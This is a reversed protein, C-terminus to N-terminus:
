NSKMVYVKREENVMDMAKQYILSNLNVNLDPLSVHVNKQLPMNEPAVNQATFSNMDVFQCEKAPSIESYRGKCNTPAVSLSRRSRKDCGSVSRRGNVDRLPTRLALAMKNNTRCHYSM